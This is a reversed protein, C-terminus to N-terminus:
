PLYTEIEARVQDETVGEALIWDGDDEIILGSATGENAEIAALEACLDDIDLDDLADVANFLRYLELLEPEASVQEALSLRDNGYGHQGLGEIGEYNNYAAAADAAEAESNWWYVGCIGDNIIAEGHETTEGITWENYNKIPKYNRM